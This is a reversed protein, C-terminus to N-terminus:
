EKVAVIGIWDGDESFEAGTLDNWVHKISFGADSLVKSVSDRSYDRFWNRYVKVGENCIVIYQDLWVSDEPYNFGQELVLHREPYWFGGQSFYWRNKLGAKMRHTRTTIDFVFVGGPKLAKHTLALLEDRKSDPFVCLEGYIQVVADFEGTYDMDFFDMCRYEIKLGSEAAHKKAYDISRESTDIGTVHIGTRCFREAYLGPGCGLDLLKMEPTLVGSDLLHKVINDIIEPRRSAADHTPDLHAKLMGKSIHPDNWFLPEGPEFLRPKVTLLEALKDM